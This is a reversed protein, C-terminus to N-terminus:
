CRRRRRRHASPNGNHLHLDDNINPSVLDPLIDNASDDGDPGGSGGGGGRDLRSNRGTHKGDDDDIAIPSSATGQGRAPFLRSTESTRNPQSQPPASESWPQHSARDGMSFVDCCRLGNCSSFLRLFFFIVIITAIAGAPRSVSIVKRSRMTVNYPIQTTATLIIMNYLKAYENDPPFNDSVQARM